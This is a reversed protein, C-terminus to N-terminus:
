KSVINNACVFLIAERVEDNVRGNGNADEMVPFLLAALGSVYATAFSTGYKYGYEDGPMTSYINFGPAVANVWDGYNALPALEGNEKVATVAICNEYSAPYVPVSSGGNGAAAIVIAGSEWAYDIAEELLPSPDHMEISINIVKAGNDVAWIIGEALATLHCRGRDDAVKVNFLRSGPAVGDIGIDNDYGAAIIGTVHTGHGYVDGTTPSDTFNVEGIVVGVLDEHDKDIGTDLVAVIVPLYDVPVPPLQIGAICELIWPQRVDTELASNDATNLLSLYSDPASSSVLPPMEMDESDPVYVAPEVVSIGASCTINTCNDGCPHAFVGQWGALICVIVLVPLILGKIYKYM